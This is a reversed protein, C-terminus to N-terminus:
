ELKNMVISLIALYSKVDFGIQGLYQMFKPSVTGNSPYFDMLSKDCYALLRFIVGVALDCAKREFVVNTTSLRFTSIIGLAQQECGNVNLRGELKRWSPKLLEVLVSIRQKACDSSDIPPLCMDAEVSKNFLFDDGYFRAIVSRQETVIESRSNSSDMRHCYQLYCITEPGCWELLIKQFDDCFKKPIKANIQLSLPKAEIMKPPRKLMYGNYKNRIRALKESESLRENKRREQFGSLMKTEMKTVTEDMVKEVTSVDKSEGTSSKMTIYSRFFDGRVDEGGEECTSFEDNEEDDSEAVDGIKLTELSTILQQDENFEFHCIDQQQERINSANFDFAVVRGEGRIWLPETELQARIAASRLFCDQCCFKDIEASREFVQVPNACLPFGCVRGLYREEVVEMWSSKDLSNLMKQLTAEVTCECESLTVIASYVARRLRQERALRDAEKRTAETEM